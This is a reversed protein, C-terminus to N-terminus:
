AVRRRARRRGRPVDVGLRRRASSDRCAAVLRGVEADSPRDGDLARLVAARVWRAEAPRHPGPVPAPAAAAGGRGGGARALDTGVLTAALEERSELTVRGDLVAPGPVSPQPRRLTARRRRDARARRCRSGTGGTPVCCTSWRSTRRPSCTSLRRWRGPRRADDTYLVFAVRGSGTGCCRTSCCRWWRPITSPTPPCTSGPTSPRGRRASTFTLMVVSDSPRFGLVCPVAALLDEPSRARLTTTKTMAGGDGRGGVGGRGGHPPRHLLATVARGTCPFHTTPPLKRAM